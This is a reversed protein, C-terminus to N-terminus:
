RPGPRTSRATSGSARRTRSSSSGEAPQPKKKIAPLRVRLWHQQAEHDARALRKRPRQVSFGLEHLLEPVYRRHYKVGFKRRILEGIMPAIWLGTSFGAAQPGAEVLAVLQERQAPTLRPPRGPPKTARLGEAGMTDYWRLWKNVGSRSVALEKSLTIASRGEIYGAVASCRKWLKLDRTVEAEALLAYLNAVAAKTLQSARIARGAQGRSM